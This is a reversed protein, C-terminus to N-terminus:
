VRYCYYNDLYVNGGGRLTKSMAGMKESANGGRLVQRTGTHPVISM